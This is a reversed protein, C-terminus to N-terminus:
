ALAPKGVAVAALLSSRALGLAYWAANVHMDVAHKAAPAAADGLEFRVALHTWNESLALCEAARQIDKFLTHLKPLHSAQVPLTCLDTKSVPLHAHGSPAPSQARVWAIAEDLKEKPWPFVRNLGFQHRIRELAKIRVIGARKCWDNIAVNLPIVETNTCYPKPPVLTAASPPLAAREEAALRDLVDLVWRRFAKAVPTRSLIGVLHCGRMSFIRAVVETLGVTMKVTASMMSSFEEKNREYIKLVSDERAYGLAQSLQRATIWPQGNRSIIKFQVDNFCLAQSM